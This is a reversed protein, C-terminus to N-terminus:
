CSRYKHTAQRDEGEGVVKTHGEEKPSGEVVQNHVEEIDGEVIHEEPTHREGYVERVNNAEEERTHNHSFDQQEFSCYSVEV